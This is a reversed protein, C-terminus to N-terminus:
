PSIKYEGQLEKLLWVLAQLAIQPNISGDLEMLCILRGKVLKLGENISNSQILDFFSEKEHIYQLIKFSDDQSYLDVIVLKVTKLSLVMEKISRLLGEVFDGQNKIGLVIAFTTKKNFTVDSKILYYAIVGIVTILLVPIWRTVFGM